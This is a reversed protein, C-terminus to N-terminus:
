AEDSSDEEVTAKNNIVQRGKYYGEPSIHHRRHTEGTAADIALTPKELKDHSRRMGRRSRTVRSKQVAM